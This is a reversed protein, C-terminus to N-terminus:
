RATAARARTGFTVDELLSSSVTPVQEGGSIRSVAARTRSFVAEITADGSAFNKMLETVLLSNPGKADAAVQGPTASSLTLANEPADIPALGRSYSRFRREFPNRRSADIVAFKTRAGSDKMTTLVQEISVGERKIDAEKWIAADVPIMYNERGAQMAFGGYFLFAVANPRLKTKMREVARQMDERSADEVVEVDFGDRRLAATLTRADNIPQVMTEGADPYRGNGIVLAIRSVKNTTAGAAESIAATRSTEPNRKTLAANAGLALSLLGVMAAAATISRRSTFLNRVRM